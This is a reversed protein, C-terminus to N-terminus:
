RRKGSSPQSFVEQMKKHYEKFVRRGKKTLRLYTRPKRGVFEKEILLLEAVALKTIHSSLNGSTMGSQNQVFLFEARTVVCLLAMINYRAPEHILRDVESLQYRNVEKDRSM